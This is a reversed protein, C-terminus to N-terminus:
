QQGKKLMALTRDYLLADEESWSKTLMYDLLKKIGVRLETEMSPKRNPCDLCAQETHTNIRIMGKSLAPCERLKVDSMEEGTEFEPLCGYQM